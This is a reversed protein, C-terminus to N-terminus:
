QREFVGNSATEGGSTSIMVLKNGEFKPTVGDGDITYANNGLNKWTGEDIKGMSVCDNADNAGFHEVDFSGDTKFHLLVADKCEIKNVTNNERIEVLKWKGILADQKSAGDEKGCAMISLAVTLVLIFKKM